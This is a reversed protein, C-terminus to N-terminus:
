PLLDRAHLLEGLLLTGGAAGRITNHSLVEFRLGLVPCERVRGVVAAMGAGAMRDLRPQPRDAGEAVVVPQQPASPLGLEQPLARFGSFLARARAPDLPPDSAVSVALLHGDSVAVRHVQCAVVLPADEVANGAVRGFIKRPEAEVKDEEGAIWPIANDILDLSPVGPYGAGSSAQLSTVIVRRLAAARALPALALVLGITTCNPNCAIFGRGGRRARQAGVLELHEPNVEPVVLPVDPAMRHASANSIVARGAAAFEEEAGRAVAADLASFAVRALVDEVRLPLVPLARAAAPIEGPLRWRVVDAYRQGASRESAVLERLEFLPHDALMSVLRQGVMGTAGLIAVPVRANTAM